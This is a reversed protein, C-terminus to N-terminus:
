RAAPATIPQRFAFLIYAVSPAPVGDIQAPRFTWERAADLAASDFSPISRKVTTRTVVGAADVAVEVLVIGSELARPPYPPTAIHTPFPIATTPAAVDKPVEGLTPTILTPARYVAAVLVRARVPRPTAPPTGGAEAPMMTTAPAFQWARVTSAVDATFPETARLVTVDDIEAGDSVNVELLVQGGGLAKIPIEPMAGGRWRPPTWGSTQAALATGLAAVVIWAGGATRMRNCIRDTM